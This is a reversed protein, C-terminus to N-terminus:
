PHVNGALVGRLLARQWPTQPGVPFGETTWRASSLAGVVRAITPPCCWSAATAWSRGSPHGGRRGLQRGVEVLSGAVLRQNAAAIM